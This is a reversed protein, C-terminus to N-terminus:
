GAAQIARRERPLGGIGMRTEFLRLRKDTAAEQRCRVEVQRGIVDQCQIM